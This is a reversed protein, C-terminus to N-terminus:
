HKFDPKRKEIFSKLGEKCDPLQINNLMVNTALEYSKEIPMEIQKYFGEKGVSFAESSHKSIKDVLSITGERLIAIQENYDKGKNVSVMENILGWDLATKADITEGTLLMHMARKPTILRSVPVAPTSCFLGLKIGPCSFGALNSAITLDCASSLQCGAAAALGYVEAIFISKSKHIKLCVEKCLNFIEAQKEKSSSELQKLDHGSSFVNGEASLVVISGELGKSKEYIENISNLKQNLETLMELSLSNRKNPNSLTILNIIKNSSKISESKILTSFQTKIIKFSLM